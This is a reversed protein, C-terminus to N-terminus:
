MAGHATPMQAMTATNRALAITIVDSAMAVTTAMMMAERWLALAHVTSVSSMAAERLARPASASLLAISVSCLQSTSM